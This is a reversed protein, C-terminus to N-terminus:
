FCSELLELRRQPVLECYATTVSCAYTDSKFDSNQPNSDWRGCWVDESDGLGTMAGAKPAPIVHTRIGGGLGNKPVIGYRAKYALRKNRGSGQPCIPLATERLLLLEGPEFGPLPVM